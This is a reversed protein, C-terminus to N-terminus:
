NAEKDTVRRRFPLKRLPLVKCLVRPVADGTDLLAESGCCLSETFLYQTFVHIVLPNKTPMKIPYSKYKIIVNEQLIIIALSTIM